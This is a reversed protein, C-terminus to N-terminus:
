LLIANKLANISIESIENNEILESLCPHLLFLYDYSFMTMFGISLENNNLHTMCKKLEKHQICIEYIEYVCKNIVENDFDELHFIQLFDYKYALDSIDYENMEVDEEIKENKLIHYTCKYKANYM